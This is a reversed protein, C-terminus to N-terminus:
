FDDEEIISERSLIALLDNPMKASSPVERIKKIKDIFFINKQM